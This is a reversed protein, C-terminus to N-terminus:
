NDAGSPSTAGAKAIVSPTAGSRDLLVHRCLAGSGNHDPPLDLTQNAVIVVYRRTSLEFGGLAGQRYLALQTHAADVKAIADSPGTAIKWETLVFAEVDAARPERESIPRGLILDTRAGATHAKFAWVGHALLHLAGIKECDVEGCAAAWRRRVDDDATLSRQLHLFAREVIRRAAIENDSFLYDLEARVARLAFVLQLTAQEVGSQGPGSMASSFRGVVSDLLPIAAAPLLDRHRDRFAGLDNLVAAMSPRIVVNVVSFPDTNRVGFSRMLDSGAVGLGEIRAALARWESLWTMAETNLVM